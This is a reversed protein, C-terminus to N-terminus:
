IFVQMYHCKNLCEGLSVSMKPAKHEITIKKIDIIKIYGCLISSLIVKTIKINSLIHINLVEYLLNLSMEKCNGQNSKRIETVYSKKEIYIIVM